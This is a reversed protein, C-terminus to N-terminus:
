KQSIKALFKQNANFIKNIIIDLNSQKKLVLSFLTRSYPSQNFPNGKLSIENEELNEIFRYSMDCAVLDLPTEVAYGCLNQVIEEGYEKKYNQITTNDTLLNLDKQVKEASQKNLLNGEHIIHAFEHIFSELFHNTTTHGKSYDYDSIEDIKEWPFDKNFIISMGPVIDNNKNNFRCPLFNTFGYILGNNDINYDNLNATIINTPFEIPIKTNNKLEDILKTIKYTAWAILKNNAFDANIDKEKKLLNQIKSCDTALIDSRIAKNLGGNFKVHYVNKINISNNIKM